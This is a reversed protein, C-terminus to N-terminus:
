VQGAVQREVTGTRMHTRLGREEGGSGPKMDQRHENGNM